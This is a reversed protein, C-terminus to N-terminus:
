RPQPKLIHTMQQLVIQWRGSKRAYVHTYLFQTSGSKGQSRVRLTAKGNSVVADGYAHANVDEIDFAETVVGPPPHIDAIEQDRNRTTGNSAIVVIDDAFLRRLTVSNDQVVAKAWKRDLAIVEQESSKKSQSQALALSSIITFALFFIRKM